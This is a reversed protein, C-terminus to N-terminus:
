TTDPSYFNVIMQRYNRTSRQDTTRVHIPRIHLGSDKIWDNLEDVENSELRNVAKHYEKILLQRDFSVKELIM